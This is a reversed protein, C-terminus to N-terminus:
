QSPCLDPCSRHLLEQLAAGVSHSAGGVGSRGVRCTSHTASARRCSHSLLSAFGYARGVLSLQVQEPPCYMPDLISEDPIFNTGSRLDACAGLDILKFKRASESFIINAPKVDRHVLGAAHLAQLRLLHAAVTSTRGVFTHFLLHDVGSKYPLQRWQSEALTERSCNAQKVEKAARARAAPQQRLPQLNVAPVCRVPAPARCM